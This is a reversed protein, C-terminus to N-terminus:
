APEAGVEILEHTEAEADGNHDDAEPGGSPLEEAEAEPFVQPARARRTEEDDPFGENDEDDQLLPNFIDVNHQDYFSKLPCVIKRDAPLECPGVLLREGIRQHRFTASTRLDANKFITLEWVLYQKSWDTVSRM